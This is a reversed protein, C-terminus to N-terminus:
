HVNMLAYVTVQPFIVQYVLSFHLNSLNLVESSSSKIEAGANKYNNDVIGLHSAYDKEICVKLHIYNYAERTSAWLIEINKNKKTLSLDM